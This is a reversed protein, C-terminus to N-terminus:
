LLAQKDPVPSRFGRGEIQLIVQFFQKKAIKRVAKADWLTTVKPATVEGLLTL